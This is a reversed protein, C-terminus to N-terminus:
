MTINKEPLNVRLIESSSRKHKFRTALMRRKNAMSENEPFSRRTKSKSVIQRRLKQDKPKLSRVPLVDSHRSGTKSKKKRVVVKKVSLDSNVVSSVENSENRSVVNRLKTNRTDDELILYIVKLLMPFKILYAQAALLFDDDTLLLIFFKIVWALNAMFLLVLKTIFFDDKGNVVYNVTIWFVYCVLSLCNIRLYGTLYPSVSMVRQDFFTLITTIVVPLCICCLLLAQDNSLIAPIPYLFTRHFSIITTSKVLLALFGGTLFSFSIRWSNKLEIRVLKEIHLAVAFYTQSFVIAIFLIGFFDDVRPKMKFFHQYAQYFDMNSLQFAKFVTSWVSIGLTLMIALDTVAFFKYFRDTRNIVLILLNSAVGITAM